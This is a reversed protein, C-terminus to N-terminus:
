KMIKMKEWRDCNVNFKRGNYTAQSNPLFTTNKNLVLMYM